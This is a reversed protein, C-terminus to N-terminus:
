TQVQVPLELTQTRWWQVVWSLQLLSFADEGSKEEHQPWQQLGPLIYQPRSNLHAPPLLPFPAM